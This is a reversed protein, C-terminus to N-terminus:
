INKSVRIAKHPEIASEIFEKKTYYIPLISKSNNINLPAVLYGDNKVYIHIFLWTDFEKLKVLYDGDEKINKNNLFEVLVTDGISYKPTMLDDVVNLMIYGREPTLYKVSVWEYDVTHIIGDDSGIDVLSVKAKKTSQETEFRDNNVISNGNTLQEVTTDLYNALKKLESEDPYTRARTWDCVKSYSIKLDESVNKRSKKKYSLLAVLNNALLKRKEVKNM